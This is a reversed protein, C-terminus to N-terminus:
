YNNLLRICNKFEDHKHTGFCRLIVPSIYKLMDNEVYYNVLPVMLKEEEVARDIAVDFTIYGNIRHGRCSSNKLKDITMLEYSVSYDNKIVKINDFRKEIRHENMNFLSTLYSLDHQNKTIIFYERM